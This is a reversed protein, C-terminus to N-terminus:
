KFLRTSFIPIKSELTDANAVCVIIIFEGNCKGVYYYTDGIYIPNHATDHMIPTNASRISEMYDIANNKNGFWIWDSM